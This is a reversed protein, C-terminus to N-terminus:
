TNKISDIFTNVILKKNNFWEYMYSTCFLLSGLLAVIMDKMTDDVGTTLVNQADKNFLKDSTFEFIEWSTAILSSMGLIFLCNFLLNIKWKKKIILELSFFSVVIGSLFHCFTDLWYIENYFKLVSGLFHAIFTFIIFIFESSDSINIKFKRLITPFLVALILSLRILVNYIDGSNIIQLTYGISLLCSLSILLKNVKKM